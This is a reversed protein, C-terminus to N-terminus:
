GVRDGVLQGGSALSGKSEVPWRGTLLNGGRCGGQSEQTFGDERRLPGAAASPEQRLKLM